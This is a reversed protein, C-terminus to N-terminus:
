HKKEACTNILATNLTKVSSEVKSLAVRRVLAHMVPLLMRGTLVPTQM